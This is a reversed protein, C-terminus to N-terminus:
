RICPGCFMSPALSCTNTSFCPLQLRRQCHLATYKLHNMKSTPKLYPFSRRYYYLPSQFRKSLSIRYIKLLTLAKEQQKRSIRFVLILKSFQGHFLRSSSKTLESNVGSNISTPFEPLIYIGATYLVPYSILFEVPLAM